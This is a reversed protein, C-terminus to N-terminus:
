GRKADSMRKGENGQVGQRWSKKTWEIQWVIKKKGRVALTGGSNGRKDCGLDEPWLCM